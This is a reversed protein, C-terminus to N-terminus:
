AAKLGAAAAPRALGLHDRLTTGQYETRFLGRRQLIPVVGETFAELGDPLADPMLNFGDAAGGRFWREIDDAVQEPTGVIVRHGGGGALEHILQRVTSGHRRAHALTALFFTHNGQGQAPLPLDDPLRRDLQLRDASIGLTGALRKLSYRWPILAVLEDRRRLAEAETGAIVTTLGALVKVADPGRGLAAARSKLERGYALSEEFSQSASFVAEAHRAALERGDASAGAQILVPRGQPTRPLNLPGQVQFFEGRHAIPQIRSVDAFVGSAKDGVFADDAWSDWLAKM